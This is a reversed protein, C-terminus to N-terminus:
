IVGGNPSGMEPPAKFVSVGETYDGAERIRKKVKTPPFLIQAQPFTEKGDAASVGGLSPFYINFPISSSRFM